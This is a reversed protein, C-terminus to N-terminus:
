PRRKFKGAFVLRWAVSDFRISCGHQRKADGKPVDM